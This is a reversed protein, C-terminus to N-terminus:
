DCIVLNMDFAKKSCLQVGNVDDVMFVEEHPHKSKYEVVSFMLNTMQITGLENFMKTLMPVSAQIIEVSDEAGIYVVTRKPEKLQCNKIEM